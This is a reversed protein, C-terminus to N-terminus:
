SRTPCRQRPVNSPCEQPVSKFSPCEQLASKYSIQKPVSKGIGACEHLVNEDPMRKPCGFLAYYSITRLKMWLSADFLDLKGYQQLVEELCTFNEFCRNQM